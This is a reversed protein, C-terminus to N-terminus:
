LFRFFNKPLWPTEACRSLRHIAGFSCSFSGHHALPLTVESFVPDCHAVPSAPTSVLASYSLASAQPVRSIPASAATRRICHASGASYLLGGEPLSTELPRKKRRRSTTHDFRVGYKSQRRNVPYASLPKQPIPIESGIPPGHLIEGIADSPELTVARSVFFWFSKRQIIGFGAYGCKSWDAEEKLITTGHAEPPATSSFGPLAVPRPYGADATQLFAKGCYQCLNSPPEFM